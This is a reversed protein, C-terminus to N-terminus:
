FPLYLLWSVSYRDTILGFKKCFGYEGLPMMAIGGDSLKQHLLDIEEDTECTIFISIAPTFSFQHPGLNDIAMYEQGALTFVAHKVHGLKGGPEGEKFYTIDKIASNQFLSTYFEMAEKAKGCHEQTFMLFTTTKQM